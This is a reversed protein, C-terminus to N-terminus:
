PSAERRSAKVYGIEYHALCYPRGPMRAASCWVFPREDGTPWQCSHQGPAFSISVVRPPPPPARPVIVAVEPKPQKPKRKISRAPQRRTSVACTGARFLIGAIAGKTVGCSAAIELYSLGERRLKVAREVLEPPPPASV